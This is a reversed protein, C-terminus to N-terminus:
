RMMSNIISCSVGRRCMGMNKQTEIHIVHFHPFDKKIIFILTSTTNAFYSQLIKLKHSDFLTYQVPVIYLTRTCIHNTLFM